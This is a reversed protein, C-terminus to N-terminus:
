PIPREEPVRIVRRGVAVKALSPSLLVSAIALLVLMSYIEHTILGTALGIEAAAVILSLRASMAFGMSLSEQTTFGLLRSPIFTGLIKGLFGAALLAALVELAKVNSLILPLDTRAGVAIFFIPIFFGYGFGLLKELLGEVKEEVESILLGAFFSGIIAHVGVYEALVALGFILAISTRVDLHYEGILEKVRERTPTWKKLREVAVILGALTALLILLRDLSLFEREVVYALAFMSIVDVLIAAGLLVQGVEERGSLEKVTPLIIGMSTTSLAVAILEAPLGYALAVLYGLFLPTLFSGLAIATVRALNAKIHRVEVELGVVFMLYIFGFLALGAFCEGITLIGFLSPGLAMGLLIEVVIVPLKVLRALVPSALILLLLVFMEELLGGM